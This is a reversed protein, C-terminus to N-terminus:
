LDEVNGEYEVFNDWHRWGNCDCLTKLPKLFLAEFMKRHDVRFLKRFEEPIEDRFGIVPIKYDNYPYIFCIRMNESRIYDYKGALKMDDLIHNYYLAAKGQGTSGKKAELFQDSDKYSGIKMFTAVENFDKSKFEDYLRDMYSLYTRENWNDRISHEYIHRMKEKMYAPYTSKVISIGKYVLEDVKEGDEEIIHKIYHKPKFLYVVDCMAERSFDIRDKVYMNFIDHSLTTKCWKNLDSALLDVDKIIDELRDFKGGYKSDIINEINCFSSDTDNYVVANYTNVDINGAVPYNKVIYDTIFGSSKKIIEQGTLTVAEANNLNYFMNYRSGCVGYTTNLIIKRTLQETDLKSYRQQLADMVTQDYGGKKELKNIDKKVKKAENKFKLREIFFQRLFYPIIGEKKTSYVAGNSAFCYKGSKKMDAIKEDTIPVTKSDRTKFYQPLGPDQMVRGLYTESSINFAIMVNPYLSQIDFITVGKRYAALNVKKVYAGEFTEDTTRDYNEEHRMYPIKVNLDRSKQVIAGVVPASSVLIQEYEILSVNCLSRVLDFFKRKREMEVVLQVDMLNYEVFMQFNNKYLHKLDSGHKLKGYGLEETAIFELTYSSRRGEVPILFRKHLMMYDIQTLGDIQMKDYAMPESFLKITTQRIWGNVPSLRRVADKGMTKLIRNHIYLMDFPVTNWGTVIDFHFKAMDNLFANLLDEETRFEFFCVDKRDIVAHGLAYTYYKETFNDYLSILNIPYKAENPECFEDGVAVEIDYFCIRLPHKAFEPGTNKGAFEAQLYEMKPHLCEYIKKDPNNDVWNQRLKSNKFTKKRLPEGYISVYEGAYDIYYLYSTHPFAKTIRKGSDDWTDLTIWGEWNQDPRMNYSITRYM